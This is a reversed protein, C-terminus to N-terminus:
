QVPSPQIIPYVQQIHLRDHEVVFSVLEQLTTPGFIAHRAPRKWDEAPLSALTELLKKRSAIFSGLAQRGDQQIYQRQEAWPDTDVGVVFPNNENAIKNFRPLFVETEVDRLHCLVETLSWEKPQPRLTWSQPAVAGCLTQLASPTSRLIALLGQPSSFVPQMEAPPSAEFWPLIEDLSGRDPASGPGPWPADQQVPVWFAPLGLQRAGSIDLDAEDGVMAIPGDPWGMQALFEAFFAPNPKAFHFSSYSPVLTFSSQSASLGAWDLRQLIATKPFLPNTAVGIQYGDALAKKVLAVAAPRPQTLRRLEPFDEAYFADLTAQVDDKELNLAPYFAADFVNMLTRDPQQNQSMKYTASLLAKVMKEPDAFPAMRQALSGLYTAVFTDMDNNLLTNDLDLLLTKTV